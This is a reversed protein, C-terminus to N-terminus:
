RPPANTRTLPPPPRGEGGSLGGLLLTWGLLLGSLLLLLGLLVLVPALLRVPHRPPPSATPSM